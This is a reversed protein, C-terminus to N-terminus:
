RQPPIGAAKAEPAAEEMYLHSDDLHAQLSVGTHLFKSATNGGVEATGSYNSESIANIIAMEAGIVENSLNFKLLHM